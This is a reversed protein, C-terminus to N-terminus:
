VPAKGRRRLQAAMLSVLLGMWRRRPRKVVPEPSQSAALMELRESLAARRHPPVDELVLEAIEPEACHLTEALMDISSLGTLRNRNNRDLAGLLAARDPAELAMFAAVGQAFPLARFAQVRDASPLLSLWRAVEPPAWEAIDRPLQLRGRRYILASRDM